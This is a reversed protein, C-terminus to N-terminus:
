FTSTFLTARFITLLKSILLDRTRRRVKPCKSKDYGCIPMDSPPRGGVWHFDSVKKLENTAGSYYAVEQLYRKKPLQVENACVVFKEQVPDLDLLSYDSYRDGNADISVNGTIGPFITTKSNFFSSIRVLSPEAGCAVPSTIGM